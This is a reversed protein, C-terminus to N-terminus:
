YFVIVENVKLYTNIVVGDFCICFFLGFFVFKVFRQFLGDSFVLYLM